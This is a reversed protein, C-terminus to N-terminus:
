ILGSSKPSYGIVIDLQPEAYSANESAAYERRQTGTATDDDVIIALTNGSVWGARNLVAQVAATVDHSYEVGATVAATAPNTGTTVSKALLAATNAPTISNDAAECRIWYNYIETRTDTAVWRLTASIIQKGQPIPMVFPIYTRVNADSPVNMGAVMLTTTGTSLPGASSTYCDDSTCSYTHTTM